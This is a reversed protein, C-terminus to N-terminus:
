INNHYINVFFLKLALLFMQECSTIHKISIHKVDFIVVFYTKIKLEIKHCTLQLGVRNCIM